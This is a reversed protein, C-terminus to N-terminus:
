HRVLGSQSPTTQFHNIPVNSVLQKGNKRVLSINKAIRLLASNASCEGDTAYKAMRQMDQKFSFLAYKCNKRSNKIKKFFVYNKAHQGLLFCKRYVFYKGKTERESRESQIEKRLRRRCVKIKIMPNTHIVLPLVKQGMLLDLTDNFNSYVFEILLIQRVPNM